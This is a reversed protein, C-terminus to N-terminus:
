CTNETDVDSTGCDQGNSDRCYSFQYVKGNVCHNNPQYGCVCTGAVPHLLRKLYASSGGHTFSTLNDGALPPVAATTISELTLSLLMALMIRNM